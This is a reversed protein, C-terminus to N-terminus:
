KEKSLFLLIKMLQASKHMNSQMVSSVLQIGNEGEVAILLYNANLYSKSEFPIIIIACYWTQSKTQYKTSPYTENVFPAYKKEITLASEIMM